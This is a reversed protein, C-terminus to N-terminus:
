SGFMMPFNNYLKILSNLFYVNDPQFLSLIRVFPLFFNSIRITKWGFSFLPIFVHPPLSPKCISCFFTRRPSSFFNFSSQRKLFLEGGGSTGSQKKERTWVMQGRKRGTWKSNREGFIFQVCMQTCAHRVLLFPPPPPAEHVILFHLCSPFFPPPHLSTPQPGPTPDTYQYPPGKQNHTLVCLLAVLTHTHTHTTLATNWCTPSKKETAFYRIFWIKHKSTSNYGSQDSTSLLM